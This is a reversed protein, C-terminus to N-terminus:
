SAGGLDLVGAEIEEATPPEVQVYDQMQGPRRVWEVFALAVVGVAYSARFKWNDSAVLRRVVSDTNERDQITSM